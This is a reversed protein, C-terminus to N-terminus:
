QQLYWQLSIRNEAGGVVRDDGDGADIGDDGDDGGGGHDDDCIHSRPWIIVPRGPGM